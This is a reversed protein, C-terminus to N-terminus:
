RKRRPLRVRLNSRVRTAGRSGINSSSLAVRAKAAGGGGLRRRARRNLSFELTATPGTSYTSARTSTRRRGRLGNRRLPLTLRGTVECGRPCRLRLRVRGRRDLRTRRSALRVPCRRDQQPDAEEGELSTLRVSTAEACAELSYVVRQGEIDFNQIGEPGALALPRRPRGDVNGVMLGRRGNALGMYLFTGGYVEIAPACARGPLPHRSPDAPTHFALTGKCEKTANSVTVLTGDEDIAAGYGTSPSPYPYREVRYVERGAALDVVITPSFQYPPAPGSNPVSADVAAWRGAVRLRDEYPDGLFRGRKLAFSRRRPPGASYDLYRLRRSGTDDLETSPCEDVFAVYSQGVAYPFSLGQGECRAVPALAPPASGVLLRSRHYEITVGASPDSTGQDGEYRIRSRQVGIRGPAAEFSYDRYAAKGAERGRAVVRVPVRESGAWLAYGDRGFATMFL